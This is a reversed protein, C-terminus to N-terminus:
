IDIKFPNKTTGRGLSAPKLRKVRSQAPCLREALAGSLFGFAEPLAARVAFRKGSRVV